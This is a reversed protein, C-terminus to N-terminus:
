PLLSYLHKNMHTHDEIDRYWDHCIECLKLKVAKNHSQLNYSQLLSM